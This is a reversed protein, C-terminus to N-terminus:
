LIIIYTRCPNLLLQIQTHMHIPWVTAPMGCLGAFFSASRILRLPGGESVGQLLKSSCLQLVGLFCFCRLSFAICFFYFFFSLLRHVSFVLSFSCIAENDSLCLVQFYKGLNSGSRCTGLGNQNSSLKGLSPDQNIYEFSDQLSFFLPFLWCEKLVHDVPMLVLKLILSM